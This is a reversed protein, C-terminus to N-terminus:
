KAVVEPPDVFDACLAAAQEVTMEGKQLWIRYNVELCKDDDLEYVFYSGFRGYTRESYRAEKPNTPKDIYLATFRNGDIVFSMANWPRNACEDKGRSWNRTDGPAGKGDTRLYYTLKQDGEAVKQSARFQFGAHQPDGDLKVKGGTSSLQSAFEILQGGSVKYATLERKEKAFVKDPGHWDVAVLHRGLVKGAEQALFGAHSLHTPGSCHWTDVRVEGKEGQYSCRSFGFFIGRHHTFKGGPGKTVLQEGGPSYLHHFVKYTDHRKQPDSDDYAKYMYRLVPRSKEHCKVCGLETYEGPTDKWVFHRGSLPETSTTATLDVSEGKKLSPLVFHLERKGQASDNLLGPATLQGRFKKGGPEALMVTKADEPADVLVTVPTNTRDHNGAKVTLEITGEDATAAVASLWCIVASLLITKRHCYKM